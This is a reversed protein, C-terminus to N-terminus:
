DSRTLSSKLHPEPIGWDLPRGGPHQTHQPEPPLPTPVRCGGPKEAPPCEEKHTLAKPTLPSKPCLSPCPTGPPRSICHPAEQTRQSAAAARPTPHDGDSHPHDTRMAAGPGPSKALPLLSLSTAPFSLLAPGPLASPRAWCTLTLPSRTGAPRQLVCM